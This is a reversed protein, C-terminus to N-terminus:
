DGVIVLKLGAVDALQKALEDPRDGHDKIIKAVEGKKRDDLSKEREDYKKQVEALRSELIRQNEELKKREATRVEDIKRLEAAHVNKIREYDEVFSSERRRFAYTGIVLVLGLLIVQWHNKM